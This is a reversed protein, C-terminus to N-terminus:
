CAQIMQLVLFVLVILCMSLKQQANGQLTDKEEPLEDFCQIQKLSVIDFDPLAERVEKLKNSNNTAFVIKKM